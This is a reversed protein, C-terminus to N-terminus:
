IRSNLKNLLTITTDVCADLDDCGKVRVVAALIPAANAMKFTKEDM